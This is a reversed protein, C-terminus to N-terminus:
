QKKQRKKLIEKTIEKVKLYLSLDQIASKIASDILIKQQMSWYEPDGNKVIKAWYRVFELREKNIELM